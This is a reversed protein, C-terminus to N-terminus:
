LIGMLETASNLVSALDMGRGPCGLKVFQCEGEVGVSKSVCECVWLMGYVDAFSSASFSETGGGDCGENAFAM